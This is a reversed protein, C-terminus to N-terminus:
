NSKPTPYSSYSNTCFQDIIKKWSGLYTNKSKEAAAAEVAQAAAAVEALYAAAPVGRAM